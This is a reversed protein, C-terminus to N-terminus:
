CCQLHGDPRSSCSRIILSGKKMKIKLYAQIRAAPPRITPMSGRSAGPLQLPLARM